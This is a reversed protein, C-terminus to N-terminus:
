FAASRSSFAPNTFTLKHTRLIIYIKDIRSLDSFSIIPLLIQFVTALVKKCPEFIQMTNLYESVRPLSCFGFSSAPM